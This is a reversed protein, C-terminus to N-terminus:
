TRACSHDLQDLCKSVTPRNIIRQHSLFEADDRVFPERFQFCVSVKAWCDDPFTEEIITLPLPVCVVVVVVGVVVMKLHRLVSHLLYSNSRRDKDDCIRREVRGM